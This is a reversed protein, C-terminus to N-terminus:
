LQDVRKGAMRSASDASCAPSSRHRYRSRMEGKADIRPGSLATSRKPLRGAIILASTCEPLSTIRVATPGPLSRTRPCIFLVSTKRTMASASPSPRLSQRRAFSRRGGSARQKAAFAANM